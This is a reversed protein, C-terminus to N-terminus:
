GPAQWAKNLEEQIVIVNYYPILFMLGQNQPSPIGARAQVEQVLPGLRAFLWYILYIGCTVVGLGYVKWWVPEERGLYASIEGSIKIFWIIQYIGCTVLSLLLVNLGSQVEGRPGHQGPPMMGGGGGSMMAGGAGAPVMAAGFGGVPMGPTGYGGQPAGYQGMQGGMQGPPAGYPQQQQQQPPQGYPNQQQAPQGQGMGAGMGAISSLDPPAGSGYEPPAGYTQGFPSFPKGGDTPGPPAGYGGQQGGQGPPAGYPNAAGPPAGYPNPAAGYPNPPNQQPAGYPNPVAGYQGSGGQGAGPPAGYPSQPAQQPPAGYPNPQPDAGFPSFGGGLGPQGPPAGYGGQAPQGPQAQPAGYPSQPPQQNGFPSFGPQQQPPQRGYNNGTPDPPKSGYGGSQGFGGTDVVTNASVDFSGPNMGPNYALTPPDSPYEGGAPPPPPVSPARPATPPTGISSPPAVGVMTGKLKNGAGPNPNANPFGGAAPMGPGGPQGPAGPGGPGQGGLGGGVAGPAPTGPRPPSNSMLMTGKFKPAAAGKLNFGCKACTASTDANQTGCNPCFM